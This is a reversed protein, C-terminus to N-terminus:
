PREVVATAVVEVNGRIMAWVPCFKEESKAIALKVDDETADASTVRLAMDIRSFGTPHEERRTGAIHISFASLDRGFRRLLSTVAGGACTAMSILFVQLPMYGEGDGLPPIYDTVIPPNGGATCEFRMRGNTLKVDAELVHGMRSGEQNNIHINYRMAYFFSLAGGAKAFPAGSNMRTDGVPV